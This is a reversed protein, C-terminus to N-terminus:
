HVGCLGESSWVMNVVVVFWWWLVVVAESPFRRLLASTQGPGERGAHSPVLCPKRGRTKDERGEMLM